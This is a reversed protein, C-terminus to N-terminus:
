LHGTPLKSTTYFGQERLLKDVRNWYTFWKSKSPNANPGDAEMEKFLEVVSAPKKAKFEDPKDEEILGDLVGLTFTFRTLTVKATSSFRSIGYQPLNDSGSEMEPAQFANLVNSLAIM